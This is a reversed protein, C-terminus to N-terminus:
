LNTGCVFVPLGAIPAGTQDDVTASVTTVCQQGAAPQQVCASSALCEPPAADVGAEAPAAQKPTSSCAAAAAAAPSRRGNVDHTIRPARRLGRWPFM